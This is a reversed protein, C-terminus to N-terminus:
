FRPLTLFLIYSASTSFLVVCRIMTSFMRVKDTSAVLVKPCSLILRSAKYRCQDWGAGAALGSSYGLRGLTNNSSSSSSTAVESLQAFLSEILEVRSIIAEHSLSLWVPYACVAQM